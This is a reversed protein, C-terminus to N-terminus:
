PHRAIARDRSFCSVSQECAQRSHLFPKLRGHFFGDFSGGGGTRKSAFRTESELEPQTAQCPQKAPVQQSGPRWPTKEGPPTADERQEARLHRISGPNIPARPDPPGTIELHPFVRRNTRSHANIGHPLDPDAGIRNNRLVSMQTCSRVIIVVRRKLQNGPWDINSGANPDRGFGKDARARYYTLSAHNTCARDYGAFEIGPPNVGAIGGDTYFLPGMLTSPCESPCSRAEGNFKAYRGFNMSHPQAQNERIPCSGHCLHFPFQQCHEAHM